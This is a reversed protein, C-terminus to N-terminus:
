GNERRIMLSPDRYDGQHPCSFEQPATELSFAPSEPNPAAAFTRKVEAPCNSGYYANLRPGWYRHLLWIHDKLEMIYSIKSNSLHFLHKEADYLINIKSM